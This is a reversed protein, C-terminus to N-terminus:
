SLSLLDGPLGHVPQAVASRDDRRLLRPEHRDVEDVRVVDHAEVVAAPRLHLQRRHQGMRHPHLGGGVNRDVPAAPVEVEGGAEVVVEGAGGRRDGLVLAHGVGHEPRHGGVLVPVVTQVEVEIGQAVDVAADLVHQVGEVGGALCAVGDHDEGGVVALHGAVAQPLLAAQDVVLVEVDGEDDGVGVQPGAHAGIGEGGRDVERGGEQREGTEVRGLGRGAV